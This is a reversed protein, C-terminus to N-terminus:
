QRPLVFQPIGRTHNKPFGLLTEMEDPELPAVKNKGTWILNWKRCQELVYKKVNDPPEEDNFRELANRIRESLKASGLATQICNMKDRPDWKPWYRKSLPFAQSITQPPLPVLPFRNETPLNHVYGRKRATASFHKSDVFEPEIEYLFRSITDWVGKPALAVNEYYFYPPGQVAEPIPRRIQQSPMSPVGYGIMPNPLRIFDEEEVNKRKSLTPFKRKKNAM